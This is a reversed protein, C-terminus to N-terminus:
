GKTRDELYKTFANATGNASLSNVYNPIEDKKNKLKDLASLVANTKENNKNLKADIQGLVIDLKANENKLINNKTLLSDNAVHLIKIEEKHKNIQTGGFLFM